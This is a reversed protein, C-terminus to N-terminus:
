VPAIVPFLDKTLCPELCSSGAWPCMGGGEPGLRRCGKRVFRLVRARFRIQVEWVEQTLLGPFLIECVDECHTGALLQQTQDILFSNGHMSLVDWLSVRSLPSLGAKPWCLVSKLQSM